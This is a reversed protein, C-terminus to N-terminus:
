RPAFVDVRARLAALFASPRERRAEQREAGTIPVVNIIRVPGEATEIWDWDGEEFPGALFVADCGEFGPFDRPLPVIEGWGLAGGGNQWPFCALNALQTAIARELERSPEGRLTLHLEARGGEDPMERAAMGITAFTTIERGGRPRYVFVDLRSLPQAGEETREYTYGEDDQGWHQIHQKYVDRLILPAPM